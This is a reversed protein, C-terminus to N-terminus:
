TSSQLPHELPNSVLLKEKGGLKNQQKEFFSDSPFTANCLNMNSINQSTFDPLNQNDQTKISGVNIPVCPPLVKTISHYHQSPACQHSSYHQPSWRQHGHKTNLMLQRLHMPLFCKMHPGNQWHKLECPSWSMIVLHPSWLM